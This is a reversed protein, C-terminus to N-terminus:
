KESSYPSIDPYPNKVLKSNGAEFTSPNVMTVCIVCVLGLVLFGTNLYGRMNSNRSINITPTPYDIGMNIKIFRKLEDVLKLTDGLERELRETEDRYHQLEQEITQYKQKKKERSQQASIRNKMMRIMKERTKPDANEFGEPIFKSPIDQIEMNKKEQERQKAKSRKEELEVKKIKKSQDIKLTTVPLAGVLSNSLFYAM